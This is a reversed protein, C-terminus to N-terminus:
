EIYDNYKLVRAEYGKKETEEEFYIVWTGYEERLREILDDWTDFTRVEWRDRDKAETIVVRIQNKSKAKEELNKCWKTIANAFDQQAEQSAEPLYGIRRIKVVPVLEPEKGAVLRVTQIVYERGADEWFIIDGPKVPVTDDFVEEIIYICKFASSM